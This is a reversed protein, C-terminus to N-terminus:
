RDSIELCSSGRGWSSGSSVDICLGTYSSPKIAPITVSFDYHTLNRRSARRLAPGSCTRALYKGRIVFYNFTSSSSAHGLPMKSLSPNPYNPLSVRLVFGIPFILSHRSPLYGCPAALQSGLCFWCPFFGSKLFGRCCLILHGQPLGWLHLLGLLCSSLLLSSPCFSGVCTGSGSSWTRVPWAFGAESTLQRPNNFCM